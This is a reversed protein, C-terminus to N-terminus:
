VLKIQSKESSVSHKVIMMLPAFEGIANVAIVAMIRLKSNSIGISSARQQNGPCYM